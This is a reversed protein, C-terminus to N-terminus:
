LARWVTASMGSANRRRVKTKEIMGLKRLESVRPRISLVSEGLHAAIEDATLGGPSTRLRLLAAERLRGLREADQKEAAESSAGGVKAGASWPYFSGFLPLQLATAHM